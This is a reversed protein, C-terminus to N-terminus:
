FNRKTNTQESLKNKRRGLLPTKKISIFDRLIVKVMKCHVEKDNVVNGTSHLPWRQHPRTKLKNWKATLAEMQNSDLRRETLM